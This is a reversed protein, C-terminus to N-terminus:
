AYLKGIDIVNPGVTSSYVPLEVSKGAVNISATGNPKVKNEM